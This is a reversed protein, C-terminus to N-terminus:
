RRRPVDEKEAEEKLDGVTEKFEGKAQDWKGEAETGPKDTADGVSEKVKGKTKDWKGELQEKNM